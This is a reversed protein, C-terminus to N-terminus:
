AVELFGDDTIPEWEVHWHIVGSAVAVSLVMQIYTDASDDKILIIPNKPDRFNTNEIIAPTSDPEGKELPDTSTSEKAYVTGVVDAQISPAGVNNTIDVSANTSYLELNVDSATNAIVTTVHGFINFVKIAGTVKFLNYTTSGDM